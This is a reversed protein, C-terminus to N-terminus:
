YVKANRKVYLFLVNKEICLSNIFFTLYRVKTAKLFKFKVM